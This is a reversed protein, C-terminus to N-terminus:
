RTCLMDWFTNKPTGIMYPTAVVLEDGAYKVVAIGAIDIWGMKFNVFSTTTTIWRPDITLVFKRKGMKTYLIPDKELDGKLRFSSASYEDIGPVNKTRFKNDLSVIQGVKLNDLNSQLPQAGIELRTLIESFQRMVYNLEFGLDHLCKHGGMIDMNLLANDKMPLSVLRPINLYYFQSVNLDWPKGKQLSQKMDAYHLAKMDKLAEVTYTETDRDITTYHTPCLLILNDFQDLQEKSYSIDGRHGTPKQAVIHCVQGIIDNTQTCILEHQCGPFACMGFSTAWLLRLTDNSIAM